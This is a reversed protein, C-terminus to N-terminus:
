PGASPVLEGDDHMRGSCERPWDGPRGQEPQAIDGKLKAQRSWVLQAGTGESNPFLMLSIPADFHPDDLSVRYYTRAPNGQSRHEWADGIHSGSTTVRYNPANPKTRNDNPEFRVKANVCLTRIEGEWGGSRNPKFTGITAM